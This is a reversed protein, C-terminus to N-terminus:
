SYEVDLLVAQADYCNVMKGLLVFISLQFNFTSFNTVLKCSLFSYRMCM